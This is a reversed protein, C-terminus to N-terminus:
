GYLPPGVIKHEYGLVAPADEVVGHEGVALVGEPLVAFGQIGLQDLEVAFGVVHLMLCYM